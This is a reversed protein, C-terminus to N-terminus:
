RFKNESHLYSKILNLCALFQLFITHKIPIQYGELNTIVRSGNLFSKINFYFIILASKIQYM